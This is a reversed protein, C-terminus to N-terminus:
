APLRNIVINTKISPGAAFFVDVTTNAPDFATPAFAMGDHAIMHNIASAHRGEVSVIKGAAVLFAPTEILHAAGNYAGVGLRELGSAFRLIGLRDRYNVMSFDFEITGVANSGLAAKLFERHVIEHARLDRIVQKERDSLMNTSFTPHAVVSDYFAAELQELVYALNLVAIEGAGLNETAYGAGRGALHIVGPDDTPAVPSRDDSCAAVVATLGLAGSWKLFARRSAAEGLPSPASPAQDPLQTRPTM